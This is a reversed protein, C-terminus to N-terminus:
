LPDDQWQGIKVYVHLEQSCGRLTQGVLKTPIVNKDIYIGLHFSISEKISDLTQKHMIAM